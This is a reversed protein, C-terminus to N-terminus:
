FCSSQFRKAQCAMCGEKSDKIEDKKMNVTALNV